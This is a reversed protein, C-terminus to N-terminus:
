CIWFKKTKKSLSKVFNQFNRLSKNDAMLHWVKIPFYLLSHSVRAEILLPIAIIKTVIQLYLKCVIKPLMVISNKLIKLSIKQVFLFKKKELMNIIGVILYNIYHISWNADRVTPVSIEWTSVVYTTLKAKIQHLFCNM